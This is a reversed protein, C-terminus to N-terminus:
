TKSRAAQYAATKAEDRTPYPGHTQAVMEEENPAVSRFWWFWGAKRPFLTSEKFYRVRICLEISEVVFTNRDSPAFCGM